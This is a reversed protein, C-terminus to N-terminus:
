RDRLAFRLTKTNNIIQKKRIVKGEENITNQQHIISKRHFLSIIFTKMVNSCCDGQICLFM